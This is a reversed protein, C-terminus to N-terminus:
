CGLMEKKFLANSPTYHVKSGKSTQVYTKNLSFIVKKGPNKAIFITPKKKGKVNATFM